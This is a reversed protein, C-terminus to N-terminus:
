DSLPAPKPAHHGLVLTLASICSDASLGQPGTSCSSRSLIVPAQKTRGRGLGGVGNGVPQARVTGTRCTHARRVQQVTVCRPVGTLRTVRGHAQLPASPQAGPARSPRAGPYALARPACVLSGRPGERWGWGGRLTATFGLAVRDTRRCGKTTSDKRLPLWTACM